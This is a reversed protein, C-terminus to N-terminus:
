GKIKIEVMVDDKMVNFSPKVNVETVVGEVPSYIENQMKMAELILVAEGKQIENGERVLVEVIKGPMPAIIKKKMINRNSLVSKPRLRTPDRITMEWKIKLQTNNVTSKTPPIIIIM